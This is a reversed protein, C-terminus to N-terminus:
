SMRMIQASANGDTEATKMMKIQYEYQRQLEIMQVMEEVTSVNSGELAGVVLGVGADPVVPQGDRVRMLGDTGKELRDLDPKVLRIRDLVVPVNAEGGQPIITITGDAGIETKKAPPIAIPGNNGLVALGTGTILQGQPTVHLDGARSYAENGDKPQVAIWGEGNVAVDLDRGTTQLSGTAFDVGPREAMAFVRSPHVPGFLPMSRFQEFDARFGLTNANALNNANSGQALLIQKAGSMSIYLSRDM